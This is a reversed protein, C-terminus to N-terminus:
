FAGRPPRPRTSIECKLKRLYTETQQTTTHRNQLSIQFLDWGAKFAEINGTAKFSYLSHKGGSDIGLDKLARSFYATIVSRSSRELSPKMDETFVYYEDYKKDDFYEEWGLKEFEAVLAPDVYLSNFIKKKTKTIGVSLSLFGEKYRKVHKIKLRRLESVRIFTYFITRCMYAMLKHTTFSRGQGKNKTVKANDFYDLIAKVQEITFPEFRESDEVNEKRDINKTVDKYEFKKAFHAFMAKIAGLQNNWTTDGITGESYRVEFFKLVTHKSIKDLRTRLHGEKECHDKLLNFLSGYTTETNEKNEPAVKSPNDKGSKMKLWLSIADELVPIPSPDNSQNLLEELPTEVLPSIPTGTKPNGGEKLMTFVGLRVGEGNKKRLRSNTLLEKKNLITSYFKQPKWKGTEFDWIHYYIYWDGNDPTKLVPEEKYLQSSEPLYYYKGDVEIRNLQM